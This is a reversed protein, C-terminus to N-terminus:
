VNKGKKKMRELEEDTPILGLRKKREEKTLTSMSTKGAKWKAGIKQKDSRNDKDESLGSGWYTSDRTLYLEERDRCFSGILCVVRAFCYSYLLVVTGVVIRFFWSVGGFCLFLWLFVRFIVGLLPPLSGVGGCALITARSLNSSGDSAGSAGM